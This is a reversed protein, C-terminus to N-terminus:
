YIVQCPASEYFDVLKLREEQTNKYRKVRCVLQFGKAMSLDYLKQDDYSPDAVTHHIKKLTEPSLYSTVDPYVPKDSMNNATTVDAVLPVIVSDTSFVM